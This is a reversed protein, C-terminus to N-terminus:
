RVTHYANGLYGVNIANEGRGAQLPVYCVTGGIELNLAIATYKEAYINFSLGNGTRLLSAGPCLRVCEGDSAATPTRTTYGAPCPRRALDGAASYYGYGVEAGSWKANMSDAANEEFYSYHMGDDNAIFGYIGNSGRELYDQVNKFYGAECSIIEAYWIGNQWLTRSGGDYEGTAQNYYSNFSGRCHNRETQVASVSCCAVQWGAYGAEKNEIGDPTLNCWSGSPVGNSPVPCAIQDCSGPPAYNFGSSKICDPSKDGYAVTHAAHYWGYPCDVPVSNAEAVYKGCPVDVKCPNGYYGDPCGNDSFAPFSVSLAFVAFVVVKNSM